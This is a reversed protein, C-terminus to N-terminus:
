MKLPVLHLPFHQHWVHINWDVFKGGRQSSKRDEQTAGAAASLTGQELVFCLSEHSDQVLLEEMRGVSGSCEYHFLCTNLHSTHDYNNCQVENWVFHCRFHPLGNLYRNELM